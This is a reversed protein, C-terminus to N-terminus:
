PSSPIVDPWLPHFMMWKDPWKRIYPEMAALAEQAMSTAIEHESGSGKPEIYAPMEARYIGDEGVYPIAVVLPAKAKLALRAHGIPLIVDRGFFQMKEGGLGPRDVATMVVGKAKLLQVAQRLSKLSVPTINFGFRRRLKNQAVYSGKPDPYSLGLSPYGIVGMYYIFMDLGVMHPGVLVIGGEAQWKTMNELILDSVECANRVAEEGAAITKFSDVFSHTTSKLVTTVFRDLEPDDFSRNRIVAQNARIARLMASQKDGVVQKTLMSGIKFALGRPVIRLLSFGISPGWRSRAIRNIAM